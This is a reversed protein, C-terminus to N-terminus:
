LSLSVVRDSEYLSVPGILGMSQEPQTKRGGVWKQATDNDTLTRMYNGLTTTVKVELRNEGERLKGTLGYLRRGCWRVGCPEGNLTVEAIGAVRGLNLVSHQTPRDVVFRTRYIVEGAFNVFETNRLDQLQQMRVKRTWAERTHHLEVDWAEINVLTEGTSPLPQWQPGKRNRDFVILLLETPGLDLEMGGDRDLEVRFREGTLPNWIWPWRGRTIEKAFNIRTRHPEYLKSNVILFIEEDRDSCYRNQLLFPDPNSFTLYPTLGYQKQVQAYWDMFNNDAPKDLLVFRDPFEKLREIWQCVQRDEEEHHNWGLSLHPLQEICFLRGGQRVFEYLKELSAPHMREVAVLFLTGYAKKGCCLRGNRVSAQEILEDSLYDCGSGHKHIAEWVFTFWRVNTDIPFPENQMGMTSWMDSLPPLLAIDTYMDVQQLLASLRAKYDMFYHLYPWWPNNENYYAGYRIWGPFPADPPSYNFGHFVSHTIGSFLTHDSGLKLFELTASFVLYTNTMDEASITRRGALHGASSIYKNIMTYGRGRRYDETGMEEGLKHKLWNTTWSEGEPIDCHLASNLPHVGRGYAQVRSLVGLSRCWEQYPIFFREDLLEAQTRCFDYRVREVRDRVQDTMEVCYHSDIVNGMGGTKFMTLPLMPIPDYGRRRIFEDRMDDCWNAGELELGDVFLARIYQRLPGIRQEIADSMRTLYKRVAAANFHNLTPGNAGPVGNIVQMFSHVKVLAYLAYRGEPVEVVIRDNAKQDSLDVIREFDDLPDPVLQLSVMEMTRGPYPNNVQPDAEQFLEFASYEVRAPGEIRKLAIVMVQGREDDELYEAGFPWGSGVILDCIMGLRKAEDFTVKLLDIWEPSLWRVPHTDLLDAEEPFKVPNIEVGGVGADHLLRLERVLEEAQIRNGNWWWRVFPRDSSEPNCFRHYLESDFRLTEKEIARRAWAPMSTLVAGGVSLSACRILFTRRDM